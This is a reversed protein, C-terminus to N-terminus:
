LKLNEFVEIRLRFHKYDCFGCQYKNLRLHLANHRVLNEKTQFAKETSTLLPCFFCNFKKSNEDNMKRKRNSSIDLKYGSDRIMRAEVSGLREVRANDCFSEVLEKIRNSNKDIKQIIRGHNELFESFDRRNVLYSNKSIPDLIEINNEANEKSKSTDESLLEDENLLELFDLNEIANSFNTERLDADLEDPGLPDWSGRMKYFIKKSLIKQTVIFNNRSSHTNKLKHYKSVSTYFFKKLTTWCTKCFKVFDKNKM